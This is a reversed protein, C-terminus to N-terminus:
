AHLSYPLSNAPAKYTSIVLVGGRAIMCFIFNLLFIVPTPNSGVGGFHSTGLVLAKSWEAMRGKRFVLANEFTINKRPGVSLSFVITLCQGNM